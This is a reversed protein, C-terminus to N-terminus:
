CFKYSTFRLGLIKIVKYTEEEYVMTERELVKLKEIIPFLFADLDKLLKSNSM